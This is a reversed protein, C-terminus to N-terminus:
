GRLAHWWSQGQAHAQRLRALGAGAEPLALAAISVSILSSLLCLTCGAHFVTPQLIALVLSGLGFGLVALGLLIVIGPRKRWRDAGGLSELLLDILYAGAGVAADPVPLLRSVFSHLVTQSGAGFFPDWVTPFVGWQYLSLYSAVALGLGALGLIPARRAWASPNHGWGPPIAAARAPEPM